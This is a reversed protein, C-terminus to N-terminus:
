ATRYISRNLRNSPERVARDKRQVSKYCAGGADTVPEASRAIVFRRDMAFNESGDVLARALERTHMGGSLEYPYHHESFRIFPGVLHHVAVGSDPAEGPRSMLRCELGYRVNHAGDAFAAPSATMVVVSATRGEAEEGGAWSWSSSASRRDAPRCLWRSSRTTMAAAPPGRDFRIPRGHIKLDVGDLALLRPIPAPQFINSCFTRRKSSRTCSANAKDTPARWVDVGARSGCTRLEVLILGPPSSPSCTRRFVKYTQSLASVGISAHCRRVRGFRLNASWWAMRGAVSRAAAAGALLFPVLEAPHHNPFLRWHQRGPEIASRSWARISTHSGRLQRSRQDCLPLLVALCSSPDLRTRRARHGVLGRNSPLFEV